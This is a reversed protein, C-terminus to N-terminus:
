TGPRATSCIPGPMNSTALAEGILEPLVGVPAAVFVARAGDVADSVSNAARDIVGHGLAAELAAASDDYGAVSADLRERAALAVSGGILGVGIVAM